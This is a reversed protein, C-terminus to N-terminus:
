EYEDDDTHRDRSEFYSEEDDDGEEYENKLRSQGISRGTFEVPVIVTDKSQLQMFTHHQKMLYETTRDAFSVEYGKPSDKQYDELNTDSKM